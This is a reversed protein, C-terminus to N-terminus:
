DAPRFRWRFVRGLYGVIRLNKSVWMSRPRAIFFVLPAIVLYAVYAWLYWHMAPDGCIQISLLNRFWPIVTFVLLVAGYVGASALYHRFAQVWTARPLDPEFFSVNLNQTM